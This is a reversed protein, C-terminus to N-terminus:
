KRKLPKHLSNNDCDLNCSEEQAHSVCTCEIPIVTNTHIKCIGVMVTDLFAENCKRKINTISDPFVEDYKKQLRKFSEAHSESGRVIIRKNKWDEKPAPMIVGSLDCMAQGGHIDNRRNFFNNYDEKRKQDM